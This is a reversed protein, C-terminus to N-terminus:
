SVKALGQAGSPAWATPSSENGNARSARCFSTLTGDSCDEPGRGNGTTRNWPQQCLQVTELRVWKRAKGQGYGKGLSRAVRLPRADSPTM